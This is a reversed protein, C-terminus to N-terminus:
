KKTYVIELQKWRVGEVSTAYATLVHRSPSEIKLESATLIVVLSGAAMESGEM